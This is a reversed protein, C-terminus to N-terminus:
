ARPACHPQTPRGSGSSSCGATSESGAPSATPRTRPGPAGPSVRRCRSSSEYPSARRSAVPSRTPTPSRARRSGPGGTATAIAMEDTDALHAITDRVDWGRAPTPRLWDDPGIARVLDLLAHQEAELDDLLAHVATDVADPM